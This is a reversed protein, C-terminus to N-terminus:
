RQTTKPDKIDTSDQYTKGEAHVMAIIVRTKVSFEAGLGVCDQFTWVERSRIREVIKPNMRNVHFECIKGM